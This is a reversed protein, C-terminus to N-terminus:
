AERVRREAQQERPQHRVVPTVGREEVLILEDTVNRQEVGDRANQDVAAVIHATREFLRPPQVPRPAAALQLDDVIRRVAAPRHGFHDDLRQPPHCERLLRSDAAGPGRASASSFRRELASLREANANPIMSWSTDGPERLTDSAPRAAPTASEM